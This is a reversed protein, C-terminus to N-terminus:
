KKLTIYTNAEPLPAHFSGGFFCTVATIEVQCSSTEADVVIDVSAVTLPCSTDREPRQQTAVLTKGPRLGANVRAALHVPLILRLTYGVTIIQRKKRAAQSTIEWRLGALHSDALEVASGVAFCHEDVCFSAAALNSLKTM